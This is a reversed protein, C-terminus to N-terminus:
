AIKFLITFKTGKGVKSKVDILGNHMDIIKRTVSLGLGTGKGPGKTSFFPDFVKTLDEEPIGKGTDEVEVIVAQEGLSYKDNARKGIGNRLQELKRMYTRITITGKGDPMAQTANLFLNIFVQELRSRDALIKPINKGLEKVININEEFKLRQKTLLMSEELISNIDQNKLHVKEEKSFDLLSRIISDSRNVSNKIMYLVKFSDKDDPAIKNELFHVGQLIIGLPNKVEHAVGSALQGIAGLKEMQILQDQTDKLQDYAKQLKNQAKKRFTIDRVVALIRDKGEIKVVKLSVEAWFLKGGRSRAHWEFIEPKKEKAVKTITDSVVKQSYKPSKESIDAIDLKKIEEVTYGFMDLVKENADIIKGTEIDHIFIADTSSNFITRYNVESLKLEEETRKRETIDIILALMASVDGRSDHIPRVSLDAWFTDGNKKLYRKEIRYSDIEKNILKQSYERSLATDEPHTLEFISKSSFEERTYGLM